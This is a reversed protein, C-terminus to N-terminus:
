YSLDSAAELNGNTHFAFFILSLHSKDGFWCGCQVGYSFLKGSQCLTPSLLMLGAAALIVAKM